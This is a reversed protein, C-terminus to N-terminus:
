WWPRILSWGQRIEVSGDPNVNPAGRSSTQHQLTIPDLLLVPGRPFEVDEIDKSNNNCINTSSESLSKLKRRPKPCPPSRFPQNQSCNPTSCTKALPKTRVKPVPQYNGNEPQNETDSERQENHIEVSTVM